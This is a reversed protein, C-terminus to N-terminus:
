ASDRTGTIINDHKRELVDSRGGYIKHNVDEASYNSLIRKELTESPPELLQPTFTPMWCAPSDRRNM